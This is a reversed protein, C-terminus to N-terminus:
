TQAGRREATRQELEVGISVLSTIGSELEVELKRHATVDQIVVVAGVVSGDLGRLPSTSELLNKSTGDLCRVTTAVNHSALGADLARRLSSENRITEANQEWWALLEGYAGSEVARLSELIRLAEENAQCVRGEGDAIIVGVPLDELVSTLKRGARLVNESERIQRERERLMAARHRFAAYVEVKMRLIDPDFPKTFYDVAGVEYGRKIEPDQNYVASIFILPIDACWSMKKIREAAEYGDMIPMHIDMLIVDIAHDRGLIAIAEAGSSARIVEYREGLVADLALLNGPTDDVALIRPRSGREARAEGTSM